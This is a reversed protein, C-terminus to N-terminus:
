RVESGKVGSVSVERMGRCLRRGLNIFEEMTGFEVGLAVLAPNPTTYMGIKAQFSFMKDLDVLGASEVSTFTVEKGIPRGWCRRRPDAYNRTLAVVVGGSTCPYTTRYGDVGFLEVQGTHRLYFLFAERMSRELGLRVALEHSLGPERRLNFKDTAISSCINPPSGLARRFCFLTRDPVAHSFIRTPKAAKDAFLILVVRVLPRLCAGWIATTPLAHASCRGGLRSLNRRTEIYHMYYPSIRM